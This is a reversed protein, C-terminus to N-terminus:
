KGARGSRKGAGHALAEFASVVVDDTILEPTMFRLFTLGDSLAHLVPVLTKPDVPLDKRPFTRSVVETAKRYLETNLQLVQLRMEDHTLAYTMFSLAALAQARRAPMAAAVARGVTRMHDRFTAGPTYAPVVPKWRERVVALFLDERDKFNGYIAGRTM